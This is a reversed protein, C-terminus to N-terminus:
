KNNKIHEELESFSPRETSYMVKRGFEVAVQPTYGNLTAMICTKICEIFKGEERALHELSNALPGVFGYALLIGLFTGVLAAAVHAGIEEPPGGLSAMTIVIGLVAAVIGFGPLADSVKTIADAALASEQHHTQLEVDMLAEVEFANMNGSVMLRMYDCIFDMAHHNKMINPYKNFLESSEPEDIDSEISMTGDKRIKNFIDFMLNLLDLYIAKKYPSGKIATPISAFSAKIVKVPNSILFAGFAAGGIVLLEFPQWLAILQGKSLVFGGGVSGFVVLIGIIIFM